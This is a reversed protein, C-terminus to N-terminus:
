GRPESLPQPSLLGEGGRCWWGRQSCRQESVLREASLSRSRSPLQLCPQAGPLERLGLEARGSTQPLGRLRRVSAAPSGLVLLSHPQRPPCFPAPGSVSEAEQKSKREQKLKEQKKRDKQKQLASIFGHTPLLGFRCLGLASGRCLEACPAAPLSHLCAGAEPLRRGGPSDAPSLRRLGQDLCATLVGCCCVGM